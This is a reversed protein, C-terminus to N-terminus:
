VEEDYANSADCGKKLSLQYTDVTKLAKKLICLTQGVLKTPLQDLGGLKQLVQPYINISYLPHSVPGVVDAIFGLVEKGETTVINDLDYV